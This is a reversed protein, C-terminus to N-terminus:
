AQRRDTRAGPNGCAKGDAPWTHFGVAQPCGSAARVSRTLMVLFRGTGPASQFPFAATAHTCDLLWVGLVAGRPEGDADDAGAPDAGREGRGELEGPVARHGDGPDGVGGPPPGRRQEGVHGSTGGASTRSRASRTRSVTGSSARGPAPRPGRRSRRRGARALQEHVGGPPVARLDQVGGQAGARQRQGQVGRHGEGAGGTSTWRRAPQEKPTVAGSSSRSAASARTM